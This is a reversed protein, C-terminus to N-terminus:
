QSKAIFVLNSQPSTPGFLHPLFFLLSGTPLVGSNSVITRLTQSHYLPSLFIQQMIFVLCILLTVYLVHKSDSIGRNFSLKELVELEALWNFTKQSSLSVSPMFLAYIVLLLSM